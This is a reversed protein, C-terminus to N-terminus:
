LPTLHRPLRSIGVGSKSIPTSTSIHRNAAQTKNAFKGSIKTCKRFYRSINFLRDISNHFFQNDDKEGERHHRKRGALVLVLLLRCLLGFFGFDAFLFFQHGLFQFEIELGQALGHPLHFGNGEDIGTVAGHFKRRLLLHDLRIVQQVRRQDRLEHGQGLLVTRHRHEAHVLRHSFEILHRHLLILLIDGLHRRVDIVFGQHFKGLGQM